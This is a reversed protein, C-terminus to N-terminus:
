SCTKVQGTVARSTTRLTASMRTTEDASAPVRVSSTGVPSFDRALAEVTCTLATGGPRYVEFDVRVQQDSVVKYGLTQWSPQGLTASLGFWIALAVGALIGVAGVVWWKLQGPAPRPLTKRSPM